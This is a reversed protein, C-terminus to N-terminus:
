CGKAKMAADMAQIKGKSTAIYTEKDGGGASALPVGIVLVGLADGTVADNQAKSLDDLSRQENARQVKLDECSQGAYAAMPIDTPMIADPRKACSTVALAVAVIVLKNMISGLM